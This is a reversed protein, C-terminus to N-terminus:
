RLTPPVLGKPRGVCFIAIGLLIALLTAAALIVGLATSFQAAPLTLTGCLLASYAVPWTRIWRPKPPNGGPWPPGAQEWPRWDGRWLQKLPPAAMLLLAFLFIEVAWTGITM